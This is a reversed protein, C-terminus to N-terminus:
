ATKRAYMAAVSEAAALPGIRVLAETAHGGGFHLERDFLTSRMLHANRRRAFARFLGWSAANDDTITTELFRVCARLDRELLSELMRRALGTGRAETAVAVQWIFLTAERDPPLYGSVFGVARGGEREALVCTDAWHTCQLLNCYMSNQDLPPCHAILTHVAPGDTSTPRRLTILSPRGAAKYPDSYKM